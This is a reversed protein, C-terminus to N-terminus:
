KLHLNFVTYLKFKVDVVKITCVHLYIVDTPKRVLVTSYWQGLHLSERYAVV